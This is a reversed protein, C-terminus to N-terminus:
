CCVKLASERLLEAHSQYVCPCFLLDMCILSRSVQICAQICELLNKCFFLMSVMFIVVAVVYHNEFTLLMSKAEYIRAHRSCSFAREVKSCRHHCHMCQHVCKIVSLVRILLIKDPVPVDEFNVVITELMKLTVQKNNHVFSLVQMQVQARKGKCVQSPLCHHVDLIEWELADISAFGGQRMDYYDNIHYEKGTLQVHDLTLQLNLRMHVIAGVTPVINMLWKHIGKPNVRRVHEYQVTLPNFKVIAFVGAELPMNKEEISLDFPSSNAPAPLVGPRGSAEIVVRDYGTRLPFTFLIFWNPPPSSRPRLLPPGQFSPTAGVALRLPMLRLSFTLTSSYPMVPNEIIRDWYDQV